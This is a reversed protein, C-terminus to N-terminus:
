CYSSLYIRFFVVSCCIIFALFNKLISLNDYFTNERIFVLWSILSCSNKAQKDVKCRNEVKVDVMM